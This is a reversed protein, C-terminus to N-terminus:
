EDIWSWLYGAAHAVFFVDTRMRKLNGMGAMMKSFAVFVECKSWKETSACDVVVWWAFHCKFTWFKESVM